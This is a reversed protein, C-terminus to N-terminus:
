NIEQLQELEAYNFLASLKDFEKVVAKYTKEATRSYEDYGFDGCFNEFTGAEYKQLCALISYETPAIPRHIKDINSVFSHDKMKIRFMLDKKDLLSRDLDVKRRGVTYYFGSDNLSNGFKFSYSRKGRSIKVDYIDRDEKDGDFHKGYHSFKIEITSGTATLFDLAQQQYDLTEM